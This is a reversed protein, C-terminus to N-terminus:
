AKGKAAALAKQRKLEAVEAATDQKKPLAAIHDDMDVLELVGGCPCREELEIQPAPPGELDPDNEVFARPMGSCWRGCSGCRVLPRHIM